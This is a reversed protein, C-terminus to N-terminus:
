RRDTFHLKVMDDNVVIGETDATPIKRTILKKSIVGLITDKFSFLPSFFEGLKTIWLYRQTIVLFTRNEKLLDTHEEESSSIQLINEYFPRNVEMFRGYTYYQNYIPKLSRIWYALYVDDELAIEKLSLNKETMFFPFCFKGAENGPKTRVQLLEATLLVITRVIWLRKPATIVFLDIDSDPHTAYMALSNSVAIMRLGPIWQILRIFDQTKRFFEQEEPSPIKKVGLISELKKTITQM